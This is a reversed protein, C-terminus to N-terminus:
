SIIFVIFSVLFSVALIFNLGIGAVAGLLAGKGAKMAESGTRKRALEAVVVGVFLGILGGLPPLIISGVVIGVFGYFIGQRSAGGYKAGIIGSLYDVLISIVWIAALVGFERSSLHAFGDILGFIVSMFFMYSLAPLMPIFVLFVGPLILAAFLISLITHTM